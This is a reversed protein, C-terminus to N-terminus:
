ERYDLNMKNREIQEITWNSPDVPEPDATPGDVHASTRFDWGDDTQGVVIALWEESADARQLVIGHRATDDGAAIDDTDPGLLQMLLPKMGSGIAFHENVHWNSKEDFGDLTIFTETGLAAFEHATKTM